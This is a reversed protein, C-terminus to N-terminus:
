LLPTLETTKISIYEAACAIMTNRHIEIVRERDPQYGGALNWVVPIGLRKAESFVIEDRIKLEATTLFGGLPDNIHQDAGAQYILLDVKSFTRVLSPLSNLFNRGGGAIRYDKSYHVIWDICLKDIIEATGNGYHQDCDLIGVRHVRGENKLQIAAIMLGNFTCYGRGSHYGAHHFGSTPSCAVKGSDLAARAATLFSGTTWPLSAAVDVQLGGFGNPIRCDLVGEVYSPDHAIAIKDRGLPLPDFISIPMGRKQWDTVVWAPKQPSPSESAPCSLQKPTYYVAIKEM